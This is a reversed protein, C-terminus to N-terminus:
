NKLRPGRARYVGELSYIALAAWIAGYGILQDHGFFEHYIVVGILLQLSPTIYQILGLM